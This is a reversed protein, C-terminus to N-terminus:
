SIGRAIQSVRENSLGTIRSVEAQSEGGRVACRLLENRRIRASECLRLQTEYVRQADALSEREVETIPTKM